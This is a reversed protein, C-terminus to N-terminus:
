VTMEDVCAFVTTPVDLCYVVIGELVAVLTSSEVDEDGDTIRM